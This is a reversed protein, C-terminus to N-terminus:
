SQIKVDFYIDFENRYCVGLKSGLNKVKQWFYWVELKFHDDRSFARWWRLLVSDHVNKHLFLPTALLLGSCPFTKLKKFHYICIDTGILYTERFTLCAYFYRGSFWVHMFTGGPVDQMCLFLALFMKCAYFNRGSCRVHM